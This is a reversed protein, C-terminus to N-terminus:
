LLNVLRFEGVGVPVDCTGGGGGQVDAQVLRLRIQVDSIDLASRGLTHLECGVTKSVVGERRHIFEGFDLGSGNGRRFIDAICQVDAINWACAGFFVPSTLRLGLRGVLDIINWPGLSVGSVLCPLVRGTECGIVVSVHRLRVKGRRADPSVRKIGYIHDSILLALAGSHNTFNLAVFRM